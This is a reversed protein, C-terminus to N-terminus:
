EKRRALAAIIKNKLWPHMEAFEEPGINHILRHKEMSLALLNDRHDDGGAGRTRIHHPAVSEEGTRAECSQHSIWYNAYERSWGNRACRLIIDDMKSM